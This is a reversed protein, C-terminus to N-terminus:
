LTTSSIANLPLNDYLAIIFDYLNDALKINLLFESNQFRDNDGDHRGMYTARTCTTSQLESSQSSLGRPPLISSSLIRPVKKSMRTCALLM